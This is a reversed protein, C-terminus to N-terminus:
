LLNFDFVYVQSLYKLFMEFTKIILDYNFIVPIAQDLIVRGVMEEKRKEAKLIMGNCEAVSLGRRAM